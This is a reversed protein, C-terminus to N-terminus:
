EKHLHTPPASAHLSPLAAQRLHAAPLWCATAPMQWSLRQLHPGTSHPRSSGSDPLHITDVLCPHGTLPCARSFHMSGMVACAWGTGPTQQGESTLCKHGMKAPLDLGTPLQSPGQPWAKPSHQQHMGKGEGKPSVSFGIGQELGVAPLFAMGVEMQTQHLCHRWQETQSDAGNGGAQGDRSVWSFAFGHRHRQLPHRAVLDLRGGDDLDAEPPIARALPPEPQGCSIVVEETSQTHGGGAGSSGLGTPIGSRMAASATQEADGM